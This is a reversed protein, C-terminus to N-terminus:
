QKTKIIQEALNRVFSYNFFIQHRAGREDDTDVIYIESDGLSCIQSMDSLGSDKFKVIKVNSNIFDQSKSRDIAIALLAMNALQSINNKETQNGTLKRAETTQYNTQNEANLALILGVMGGKPHIIPEILFVNDIDVEAEKAMYSSIMAGSSFGILSVKHDNLDYALDVARWMTQAAVSYESSFVVERIQRANANADQSHGIGPLEVGIVTSATGEALAQIMKIGDGEAVVNFPMPYIFVKESSGGLPRAIAIGINKAGGTNVLKRTIEVKGLEDDGGLSVNVEEATKICDILGSDDVFQDIYNHRQVLFWLFCFVLFVLLTIFIKTRM